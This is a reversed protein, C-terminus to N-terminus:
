RRDLCFPLIEPPSKKRLIGLRPENRGDAHPKFDLTIVTLAIPDATFLHSAGLLRGAAFDGNRPRVL